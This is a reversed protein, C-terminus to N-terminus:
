GSTHGAALTMPSPAPCAQGSFDPMHLGTGTPSAQLSPGLHPLRTAAPVSLTLGVPWPTITLGLALAEGGGVVPLSVPQPAQDHPMSGVTGPPTSLRFAPTEPSHGTPSHAPSVQALGPCPRAQLWCSLECAVWVELSPGTGQRGQGSELM